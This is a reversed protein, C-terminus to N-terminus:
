RGAPGSPFPRSFTTTPRWELPFRPHAASMGAALNLLWNERANVLSREGQRDNEEKEKVAYGSGESKKRRREPVPSRFVATSLFSLFYLQGNVSRRIAKARLILPPFFLSPPFYLSASARRNRIRPSPQNSLIVTRSRALIAYRDDFPDHKSKHRSVKCTIDRVIRTRNDAIENSKDSKIAPLRM